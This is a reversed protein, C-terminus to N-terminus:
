NRPSHPNVVDTANGASKSQTAEAALALSMTTCLGILAAGLGLRRKLNDM